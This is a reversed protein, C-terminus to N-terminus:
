PNAKKAGAANKIITAAQACESIFKLQAQYSAEGIIFPNETGPPAKAMAAAKKLGDSFHTGLMVDVHLAAATKGLRQASAAEMPQAFREGPSQWIAAMHPVGNDKVPFIMATTGPTHGPAAVFTFTTDGLTVTGGDTLVRDRKPKPGWAPPATPTVPFKWDAESMYIHSGFNDRLYQAGGYLDGHGHTIFIDKIDKPDLGLKKFSPLLVYDINGMNYLSDIMALGASTKVVLVGVGKLGVYYVNDFLKAPEVGTVRDKEQEGDAAAAAPGRSCRQNPRPSAAAAATAADIHKQAEPPINSQALALGCMASTLVGCLLTTAYRM